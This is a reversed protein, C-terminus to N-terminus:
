NDVFRVRSVFDFTPPNTDNDTFVALYLNGLGCSADTADTGLYLMHMPENNSVAGTKTTNGAVEMELRVDHLVEFRSENDPLIPTLTALATGAAGGILNAATPLVGQQAHDRVLLFRLVHGTADSVSSHGSFALYHSIAKISRGNRQNYDDGQAIASLNYVTGARSSTAATATISCFKDEVNWVSAAAKAINIALGGADRLSFKYDLLSSQSKPRGIVAKRPQKRKGNKRPM